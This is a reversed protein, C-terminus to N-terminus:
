CPRRSSVRRWTVFMGLFGLTILGPGAAAPLPIAQAGGGPAVAVDALTFQNQDRNRTFLPEFSGDNQDVEFRIIMSITDAGVAETNGAAYMSGDPGVGLGSVFFPGPSDQPSHANFRGLSAGTTRDWLDASTGATGTELPQSVSLVNGGTTVALDGFFGEEPPVLYSSRVGTQPNQRAVGSITDTEPVPNPQFDVAYLVNNAADLALHNLTHQSEVALPTISGNGLNVRELGGSSTTLLAANGTLALSTVGGPAVVTQMGTAPNIRVLGATADAAYVLGDTGVQIQSVNKLNGGSTITSLTGNSGAQNLLAIRATGNDHAAVVVDGSQLPFGARALPQALTFAALLVLAYRYFRVRASRFENIM